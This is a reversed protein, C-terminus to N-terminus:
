TGSIPIEDGMTPIICIDEPAQLRIIRLELETNRYCNAGGWEEEYSSKNKPLGMTDEQEQQVEPVSLAFIPNGATKHRM